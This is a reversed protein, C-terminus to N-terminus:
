DDVIQIQGCRACHLYRTSPQGRAYPDTHPPIEVLVTLKGGCAACRGVRAPEARAGRRDNPANM